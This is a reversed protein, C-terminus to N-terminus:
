ERILKENMAELLRSAAEKPNQAKFIASIVAIGDMGAGMVEGVNKENIGGIGILVHKSIQRLLLLKDLGWPATIDTKTDTYFVPSASLYTIDWDNAHKAQELDNASIGIIKDPGLIKRAEHFSLDSQGLHVGDADLALALGVRDNIIFPIQYFALIKKLRKGLEFLDNDQAHKDRLQVANVGGQVASEVITELSKGCCLGQDTVLYLIPLKRIFANSM